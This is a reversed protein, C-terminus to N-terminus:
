LLGGANFHVDFGVLTTRSIAYGRWALAVERGMGTAGVATQAAMYEGGWLSADWTSADWTGEGGGGYTGPVLPELLDYSYKAVTRCAPNPTESLLTPRLLEVRKTRPTGLSQFGTLGSYEVPTYVSPDSLSVADVYGTARCVCGDTTGFYAEGNWVAASVLPLGRWVSWARAGALGWALQLTAQGPLTPVAVLLVNDAPHLYLGWGPLTRRANVHQSLLNAVKGSAADASREAPAGVVLRTLPVLGQASLVYLEGGHELAIRRGVPVAGLSWSGKLGFTSASAPDTGQYIVVDGATSLGVLLADLGSGGDYSWSYLGVLPGGARMRGGMEFSTATGYLSGAELYWARSTDKEVLWVRSKFVTVFAVSAPSFSVGRLQDALSAGLMQTAQPGVYDWAATGDAIAAGTGTPGGTSSAGTTGTGSCVYEKGGNVVRVGATVFTDPLWAQTTGAQPRTWTASTESYVYLGHEEDAYLLFRGGATAFVCATGTGSDGAESPFAVLQTPAATSSSADWIGSATVAFLKDTAGSRRGGNFALLTPVQSGTGGTLGTVWEQYGTRARLGHTDAVMNYLYVCDQPPMASAAAATNLGGMPAPLHLSQVTPPPAARKRRPAVM